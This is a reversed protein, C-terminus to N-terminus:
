VEFTDLDKAVTVNENEDKKEDYMHVLVTKKIKMEDSLQVAEDITMHGVRAKEKWTAEVIALDADKLTEKLGDCVDSDGSYAFVKGEAEVRYSLCNWNKTHAVLNAEIKVDALVVTETDDLDIFEIMFDNYSKIQLANLINMMRERTELPGYITLKKKDTEGKFSKIYLAHIFIFLDNIHDTHMHSLFITDIDEINLGVKLLNGISGRGIDFLISKGNAQLLYSSTASDIKPLINGCGLVTIKM